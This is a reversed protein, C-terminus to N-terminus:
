ILQMDAYDNDRSVQSTQHNGLTVLETNIVQHAQATM